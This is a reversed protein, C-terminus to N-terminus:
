ERITTQSGYNEDLIETVKNGVAEEMARGVESSIPHFTNLNKEGVKRTPYVLRYGTGDLRTYVAVSGIWFKGDIVFSVFGVHGDRPKVPVFQIESIKTPTQSM